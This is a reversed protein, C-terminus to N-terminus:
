RYKTLRFLGKQPKYIKDPYKEVLKWILGNITKPHLSKDFAKVERALDTCRMGEPHKELLEFIKKYIKETFTIKKDM